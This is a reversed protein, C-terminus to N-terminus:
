LSEWFEAAEKWRFAEDMDQPVGTGTSYMVGLCYQAKTHGQDAARTLWKKGELADTKVGKGNLHMIGLNYQADANGSKAAELWWHYAL